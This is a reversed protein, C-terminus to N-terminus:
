IRSVPEGGARRAVLAALRARLAPDLPAEELRHLADRELGAAHALLLRADRAGGEIGCLAAAAAALAERATTAAAIGSM